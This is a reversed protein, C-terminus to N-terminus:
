PCFLTDFFPLTASLLPPCSFLLLPFAPFSCSPPDCLPLFLLSADFRASSSAVSWTEDCLHLPFWPPKTVCALPLSLSCPLRWDKSGTRGLFLWRPLSGLPPSGQVLWPGSDAWSCASRKASLFSCPGQSHTLQPWPAAGPWSSPHNWQNNGSSCLYQQKSQYHPNTEKGGPVVRTILLNMKSCSVM